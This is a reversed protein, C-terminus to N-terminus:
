CLFRSLCRSNRHIGENEVASGIAAFMSAYLMYGFIFFLLFSILIEGVHMNSLTDLVVSFESPEMMASMQEADMGSMNMM